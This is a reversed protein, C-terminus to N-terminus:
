PKTAPHEKMRSKQKIRRWEWPPIPPDDEARWLGLHAEKAMKEAQAYDPQGPAYKQYHWAFGKRIMELNINKKKHFITGVLRGYRDKEIVLVSVMRRGIMQILAETAEKGGPQNIEPADIGWLRIKYWRGDKVTLTITDGDNIWIARGRLEQCHASLM